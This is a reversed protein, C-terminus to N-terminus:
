KSYIEKRQIQNQRPYSFQASASQNCDLLQSIQLYHWNMETRFKVATQTSLLIMSILLEIKVFKRSNQFKVSGPVRKKDFNDSLRTDPQYKENGMVHFVQMCMIFSLIMYQTSLQGLSFIPKM